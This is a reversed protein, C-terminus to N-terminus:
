RSTCGANHGVDFRKTRAPAVNGSSTSADRRLPTAKCADVTGRRKNGVMQGFLWDDSLDKLRICNAPPM